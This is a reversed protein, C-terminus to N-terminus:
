VLIKLKDGFWLVEEFLVADIQGRIFEIVEAFEQFLHQLEVWVLADRYLLHLLGSVNYLVV